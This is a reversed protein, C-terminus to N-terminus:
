AYCEKALSDLLNTVYDLREHNAPTKHIFRIKTPGDFRYLRPQKQVLQILYGPDIKADQQFEITGGQDNAEIKNIDINAASLKIATQQVLNKAAQPLLGFRDILEIQLNDIEEMDICNALKKYMTLRM